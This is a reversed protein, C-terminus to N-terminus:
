ASLKLQFINSILIVSTPNSVSLLLPLCVPLCLFVPDSSLPLGLAPPHPSTHTHTHTVTGTHSHTHTHTHTHSHRHTHTHSVTRTHTHTHTHTVTGTHAHTVTGTHAHTVTGTHTYTDCHRHTHTHCQGHRHTNRPWTCRHQLPPPCHSSQNVQPLLPHSSLHPTGVSRRLALRNHSHIIVQIHSHSLPSNEIDGATDNWQKYLLWGCCCILTRISLWFSM